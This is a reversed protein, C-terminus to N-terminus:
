EKCRIESMKLGNEQNNIIIPQLLLKILKIKPKFNGNYYIFMKVPIKKYLTAQTNNYQHGDKGGVFDTKHYIYEVGNDGVVKGGNRANLQFYIEDYDESINTVQFEVVVWNPSYTASLYKISVGEIVQYLNSSENPSEADTMKKRKESNNPVDIIADKCILRVDNSIYNTRPLPLKGKSVCGYKKVSFRIESIEYGVKDMNITANYTGNESTSVTQKEQGIEVVVTAGKVDHGDEDEVKGTILLNNNANKPMLIVTYANDEKRASATFVTDVKIYGDKIVRFNAEGIPINKFAVNGDAGTQQTENGLQRATIRVKDLPNGTTKDLVLIFVTAGNTKIPPQALTSCNMLVIFLLFYIIQKM